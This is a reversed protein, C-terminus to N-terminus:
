SSATNQFARYVSDDYISIGQIESWMIVVGFDVLDIPVIEGESIRLDVLDKALPDDPDPQKGKPDTIRAMLEKYFVTFTVRQTTPDRYGSYLPILKLSTFLIVPDKLESASQGVYVKGSKLTVMLPKRYVFARYLIKIAPDECKVVYRAIGAARTKLKIYKWPLGQVVANDLMMFLISIRDVCSLILAILLSCIVSADLGFYKALTGLIADVKGHSFKLEIFSALFQGLAYFVISYGLVHLAFRDTRLHETKYARYPSVRIFIYGSLLSLSAGYVKLVSSEM